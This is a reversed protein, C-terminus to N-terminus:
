SEKFVTSLNKQKFTLIGMMMVIITIKMKMKM